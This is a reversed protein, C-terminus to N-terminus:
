PLPNTDGVDDVKFILMMGADEHGVIHCHYVFNGVMTPDNFPIKLVVQGPVGNQKCPLDIVDRLGAEDPDDDNISEVFFDLQHIHFVHRESSTNLISNEVM